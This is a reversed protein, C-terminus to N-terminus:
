DVFRVHRRSAEPFAAASAVVGKKLEISALNTHQFARDEIVQINPLQLSDLNQCCTFAAEAIRQVKPLLALRLDTCGGFAERELDTARPLEVAKLRRCGHFVRVGVIRAVPLSVSEMRSCGMFVCSDLIKASPLSADRLDNCESFMGEGVFHLSPLVVSRLATCQHFAYSGTQELKPCELSELSCCGDFAGEEVRRAAPLSLSRLRRNKAFASWEIDEVVPVSLHRLNTCNEFARPEIEKASPLWLSELTENEAPDEDDDDDDDEEELIRRVLRDEHAEVLQAHELIVHTANLTVSARTSTRRDILAFASKAAPPWFSDDVVLLSRGSRCFHGVQRFKRLLARLDADSSRPEDFFAFFIEPGRCTQCAKLWAHSPLGHRLELLIHEQWHRIFVEVACDGRRRKKRSPAPASCFSRSSWFNGM